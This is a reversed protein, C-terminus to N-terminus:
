CKLSHLAFGVHRFLRWDLVIFVSHNEWGLVRQQRFHHVLTPVVDPPWLIKTGGQLFTNCQLRANKNDFANGRRAFVRKLLMQLQLELVSNDM